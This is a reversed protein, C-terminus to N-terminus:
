EWRDETEDEAMLPDDDEDETDLVDLIDDSVEVDKGEDIKDEKEEDNDRRHKAM